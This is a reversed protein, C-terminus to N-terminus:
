LVFIQSVRNMYILVHASTDYQLTPGGGGGSGGGSGCGGVVVCTVASVAVAPLLTSGDVSGGTGVIVTTLASAGGGGGGDGGVAVCTVTTFASVPGGIATDTTTALALATTSPAAAESCVPSVRSLLGPRCHRDTSVSVSSSQWRKTPSQRCLQQRRRRWWWLGGCLHRSVGSWRYCHRDTPVAAAADDVVTWLATLVAAM